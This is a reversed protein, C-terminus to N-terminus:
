IYIKGQDASPCIPSVDITIKDSRKNFPTLMSNWLAMAFKQHALISPHYCDLSSIYEPPFSSLNTGYGFKHLTVGFTDFGMGQYDATIKESIGRFITAYQRMMQRNEANNAKSLACSCELRSVKRRKVCYPDDKGIDAVEDFNFAAVLNVILRPVGERLVELAERIDAEHSAVLQARTDVSMNCVNCVENAGILLTALHWGTEDPQLIKRADQVIVNAQHVLNGTRAGCQAANLYDDRRRQGRPCFATGMCIEPLHQGVSMGELPPAGDPQVAGLLNPLTLEGSNGGIAWSSGRYEQFGGEAGFGATISDGLALVGRIDQLRVSHVDKAPESPWPLRECSASFAELLAARDAASSSEGYQGYYGSKRERKEEEEGSAAEGGRQQQQQQQQQEDHRRAADVTDTREYQPVRAAAVGGGSPAAALGVGVALAVTVVLMVLPSYVRGETKKKMKKMKVWGRTRRQGERLQQRDRKQKTPRLRGASLAVTGQADLVSRTQHTGPPDCTHTHIHLLPLSLPSVLEQPLLHKRKKKGRHETSNDEKTAKDKQLPSAQTFTPILVTTAEFNKVGKM